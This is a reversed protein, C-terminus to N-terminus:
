CGRLVNVVGERERGVRGGGGNGSRVSMVGEGVPDLILMEDVVGKIVGGRVGLGRGGKRILRAEREEVCSRVAVLGEASAVM